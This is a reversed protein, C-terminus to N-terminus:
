GKVRKDIRKLLEKLTPGYLLENYLENGLLNCLKQANRQLANYRKKASRCGLRDSLDYGCDDAWELFNTDNVMGAEDGLRKLVHSAEIDEFDKVPFYSTMQRNAHRILIKYHPLGCGAINLNRNVVQFSIRIKNTAVFEEVMEM